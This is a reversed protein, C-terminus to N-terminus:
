FNVKKMFEAFKHHMTESSPKDNATLATEELTDQLFKAM